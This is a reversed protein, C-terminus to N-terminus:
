KCPYTRSPTAPGGGRYGGPASCLATLAAPLVTDSAADCLRHAAVGRRQVHARLATPTHPFNSSGAGEGRAIRTCCTVNAVTEWSVGVAPVGVAVEAPLKNFAAFYHNQQTLVSNRGDTAKKKHKQKGGGSALKVALCLESERLPQTAINLMFIVSLFESPKREVCLLM